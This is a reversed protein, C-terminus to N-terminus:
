VSLRGRGLRQQLDEGELWEMAFYPRGDPPTGQGALGVIGPHRLESLIRAEREFRARDGAHEALMVKVAFAEGSARDHARFVQGMGGEGALAELAFRGGLVDGAHM